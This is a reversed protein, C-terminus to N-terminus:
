PNASADSNKFWKQYIQNYKGNLKINYLGTNIKNLLEINGKHIAFVVPSSGESPNFPAFHYNQPDKAHKNLYYELPIKDGVVYDAGGTMLGQFSKFLSPYLKTAINLETLLRHSNTSEQVSVTLTRLDASSNVAKSKHSLIIRQSKAYPESLESQAQREPNPNLSAAVIQHKNAVLDPYLTSRPAHEFHVAFKQDDAIARLIESEFGIVEGREDLFAYPPYTVDIGVNYTAMTTNVAPTKQASEKPAEDGCGALALLGAVGIAMMPKNIKIAMFVGIISFSM